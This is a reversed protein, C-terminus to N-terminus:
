FPACRAISKRKKRAKEKRKKGGGDEKSPSKSGKEHMENMIEAMDMILTRTTEAKRVIEPRPDCIRKELPIGNIRARKCEEIHLAIQKYMIKGITGEHKKIQVAGVNIVSLIADVMGITGNFEIMGAAKGVEELMRM